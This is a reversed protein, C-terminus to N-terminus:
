NGDWVRVSGDENLGDTIEAAVWQVGDPETHVRQETVFDEFTPKSIQEGDQGLLEM